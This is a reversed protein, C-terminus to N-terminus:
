SYIGGEMGVPINRSGYVGKWSVPEVWTSPQAIQLLEYVRQAFVKADLINDGEYVYISLVVIKIPEQQLNASSTTAPLTVTHPFETELLKLLNVCSPTPKMELGLEPSKLSNVLIEIVPSLEKPDKLKTTQEEVTLRSLNAALDNSYLEYLSGDSQERFASDKSQLVLVKSFGATNIFPVIVQQYFQTTYGPLVPSRQQLIALKLDKNHYVELSTSFDQISNDANGEVYDVPSVFPHVLSDDLWAVSKLNLNHILLDATFQPVNGISVIPLVLTSGKFSNLVEIPNTKSHFAM